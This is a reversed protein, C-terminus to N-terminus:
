PNLKEGRMCDIWYLISDLMQYNATFGIRNVKDRNALLKVPCRFLTDLFAWNALDEMKTQKLGKKASVEEWVSGKDAMFSSFLFTPSFMDEEPVELEFKQALAPWIEKWTFHTGNIANFAQGDASRIDDNTSAWIHQDAILRADSGDIYFEEWCEKLGGFVFPLNLHKCITGYVCLCGMVNYITRHSCGLILGPRQVTWAVKGALREKLLDELVYYFNYGETVRPSEEDYCPVGNVNFSGLSVYHKTGTQLSIHKLVKARPLIADLANSMMVKNQECCEETDLPFESTWTIWFVHTVELVLSSIKEMTQIPNLLDCSIFNYNSDRISVLDPDRAIGYVKWGRKALLKKALEKGVLGTVGLILAVNNLIVLPTIEKNSMTPNEM